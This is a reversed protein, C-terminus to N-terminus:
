GPKKLISQCVRDLANQLSTLPVNGIQAKLKQVATDELCIEGHPYIKAMRDMLIQFADKKEVADAVHALYLFPEWM